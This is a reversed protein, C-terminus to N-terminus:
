RRRLLFVLIFRVILFTLLAGILLITNSVSIEFLLGVALCGMGIAVINVIFFILTATYIILKQAHKFILLKLGYDVLTFVTIFVPLFLHTEFELPRFICFSATILLANILYYLLFNLFNNKVINFSFGIVVVKNNKNQDLDNLLDILDEEKELDVNIIKKQKKEKKTKKNKEKNM